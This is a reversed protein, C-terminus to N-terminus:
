HCSTRACESAVLYFVVTSKTIQLSPFVLCHGVPDTNWIMSMQLLPTHAYKTPSSNQRHPAGRGRHTTMACHTTPRRSSAFSEGQMGDPGYRRRRRRARFARRSGNRRPGDRYLSNRQRSLLLRLLTQSWELTVRQASPFHALGAVPSKLIIRIQVAQPTSSFRLLQSEAGRPNCLRM